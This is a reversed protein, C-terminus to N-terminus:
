NVFMVDKWDPSLLTLLYIANVIHLKIWFWVYMYNSWPFTSKKICLLHMMKHVDFDTPIKMSMCITCRLHAAYMRLCSIAPAYYKQLRNKTGWSFNRCRCTKRQLVVHLQDWVAQMVSKDVKIKLIYYRLAYVHRILFMCVKPKPEGKETTEAHAYM